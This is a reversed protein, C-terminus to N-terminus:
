VAEWKRGREGRVLASRTGDSHRVVVLPAAGRAEVAEIPKEIRFERGLDLAEALVIERDLDVLFARVAEPEKALFRITDACLGGALIAAERGDYPKAVCAATWVLKMIGRAHAAETRAESLAPKTKVTPDIMAEIRRIVKDAIARQPKTLRDHIRRVCFLGIRGLADLSLRPQGGGLHYPGVPRLEEDAADLATEYVPHAAYWSM